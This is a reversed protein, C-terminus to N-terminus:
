NTIRKSWDRLVPFRDHPLCLALKYGAQLEYLRFQWGCTSDNALFEIQENVRFEFSDLAISLGKGEAKIYSEKLAWLTFFYDRQQLQPLKRLDGAESTSFFREAIDLETKRCVEQVDVGLPQPNIACVVWEGSHSLNFHFDPLGVIHPKGYENEAIKAQAFDIQCFENVVRALLLAATLARLKARKHSYRIVKARYYDNLTGTKSFFLQDVDEGPLSAVFLETL